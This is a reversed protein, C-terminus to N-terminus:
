YTREWYNQLANFMTDSNKEDYDALINEDLKEDTESDYVEYIEFNTNDYEPNDTKHPVFNGYVDVKRPNGYARTVWGLIHYNAYEGGRDQGRGLDIEDYDPKQYNELLNKLKILSIRRQLLNQLAQIIKKADETSLNIYHVIKDLDNKSRIGLQILKTDEENKSIVVDADHTEIQSIFENLSIGREKLVNIIESRIINKISLSPNKMLPRVDKELDKRESDDVPEPLLEKKPEPLIKKDNQM